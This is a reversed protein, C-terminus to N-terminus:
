APGGCRASQKAQSYYSFAHIINGFECVCLFRFYDIILLFLTLDQKEQSFICSIKSKEQHIHFFFFFSVALSLVPLLPTRLIIVLLM